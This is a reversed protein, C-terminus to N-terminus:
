LLQLHNESLYYGFYYYDHVFRFMVNKNARAEPGLACRLSDAELFLLNAKNGVKFAFKRIAAHAIYGYRCSGAQVKAFFSRDHDDVRFVEPIALDVAFFFNVLNEIGKFLARGTFIVQDVSGGKKISDAYSSVDPLM